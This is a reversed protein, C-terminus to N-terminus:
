VGINSSQFCLSGAKPFPHHELEVLIEALDSWIRAKGDETAEKGSAGEGTWPRRPLEEMLLFSESAVSHKRYEVALAVDQGPEGDLLLM